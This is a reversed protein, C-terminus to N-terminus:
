GNEDGLERLLRRLDRPPLEPMSHYRRSEQHGDVYLLCLVEGRSDCLIILSKGSAPSTDIAIEADATPYVAFRRPALGYMITLLHVANNFAENSPPPYGLTHAETAALRLDDRAEALDRSVPPGDSYARLPIGDPRSSWSGVASGASGQIRFTPVLVGSTPNVM